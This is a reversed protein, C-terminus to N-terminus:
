EAVVILDRGRGKARYLARDAADILEFASLGHQPFSAIGQSITPKSMAQGAGDTLDLAYVAERIRQAVILAQDVKAGPLIIGFEEGGWRGVIDTQKTHLHIARVIAQLITDGILHGYLDNYQKFYDIDLMIYSLPHGDTKAQELRKSMQEVLYGHNYAQTLSDRTAQEALRQHLTANDIAIAAQDSLLTLVRLEDDTFTHPELFAINFAGIVTDARILPFSALARAHWASPRSSAGPFDDLNDVVVPQRNRVARATTGDPRPFFSADRSQGDAWLATGHTFTHTAEDYLFIHIDAAQVLRLASDAIAQLVTKLDLSSLIRLSIQRLTTLEDVRRALGAEARRAEAISRKAEDFLRANELILALQSAITTLFYADHEDFAAEKPSEVNIGGIVRRSVKMPVCLESRTSPIISVYRPDRTVDDVLISEGSSAVSGTIGDGARITAQQVRELGLGFGARMTLRGTEADVLFITLHPYTLTKEMAAAANHLVQDVGVGASAALSIERLISLEEIRRSLTRDHQEIIAEMESRAIRRMHQLSRVADYFYAILGAAILFALVVAMELVNRRWVWLTAFLLALLIILVAAIIQRGRRLLTRM